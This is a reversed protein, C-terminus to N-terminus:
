ALGAPIVVTASSFYRPYFATVLPIIIIIIIIIIFSRSCLSM